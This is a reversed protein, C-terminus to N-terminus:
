PLSNPFCICAKGPKSVNAQGERDHNIDEAALHCQVEWSTLSPPLYKSHRDTFELLTIVETSSLHVFKQIEARLFVRSVCFNFVNVLCPTIISVQGPMEWLLQCRIRGTTSHESLQDRLGHWTTPPLSTIVACFHSFETPKPQQRKTQKNTKGLRTKRQSILIAKNNNNKEKPILSLPM